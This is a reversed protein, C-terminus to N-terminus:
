VYLKLCCLCQKKNQNIVTNYICERHYPHGYPLARVDNDRDFGNQCVLCVKIGNYAKEIDIQVIPM